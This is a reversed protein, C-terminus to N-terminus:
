AQINKFYDTIRYIQLNTSNWHCHESIWTCTKHAHKSDDEPGRSVVGGQVQGRDSALRPQLPQAPGTHWCSARTRPWVVCCSVIGEINLSYLLQQSTAENVYNVWGVCEAYVGRRFLWALMLFFKILERILKVINWEVTGNLQCLHPTPLGPGSDSSDVM